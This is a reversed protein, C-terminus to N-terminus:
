DIRPKANYFAFLCNRPKCSIELRIAFPGVRRFFFSILALNVYTNMSDKLRHQETGWVVGSKHPVFMRKHKQEKTGQTCHKVAPPRAVPTSQYRSQHRASPAYRSAAVTLRPASFQRFNGGPLRRRLRRQLPGDLDPPLSLRPPLPTPPPLSPPIKGRGHNAKEATSYGQVLIVQSSVLDSPPLHLSRTCKIVVFM